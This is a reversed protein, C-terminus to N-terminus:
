LVIPSMFDKFRDKDKELEASVYGPVWKPNTVIKYISKPIFIIWFMLNVVLREIGEIINIFNM